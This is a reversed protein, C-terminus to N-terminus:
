PKGAVDAVALMKEVALFPESLHSHQTGQTQGTKTVDLPLLNPM